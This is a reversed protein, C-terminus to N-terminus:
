KALAEVLKARREDKTFKYLYGSLGTVQNHQPQPKPPIQKQM